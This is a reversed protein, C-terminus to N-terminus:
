DCGAQFLNQFCVFDLVNLLGDENCDAVPDGMLWEIQFTLFDLIDLVGDGNLDADSMCAPGVYSIANLAFVESDASLFQNFFVSTDATLVVAGSEDQLADHEIVALGVEGVANAGLSDAHDGLDDFVASCLLGFGDANGNPGDWIPHEVPEISLNGVAGDSHLGFVGILSQNALKVSESGNGDTLLIAGGGGEVFTLLASAEADSLVAIGTNVSDLSCLVLVDVDSLFEDTLVPASVIEVGDFTELIENRLEIILSGDTISMDGGRVADFGGIVFGDQGLAGATTALIVIATTTWM